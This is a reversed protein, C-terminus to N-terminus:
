PGVSWFHQPPLEGRRVVNTGNSYGQADVNLKLYPINRICRAALYDVMLTRMEREDALFPGEILLFQISWPCNTRLPSLINELSRDVLTLKTLRKCHPFLKGLANEVRRTNHFSTQLDLRLGVSDEVINEKM